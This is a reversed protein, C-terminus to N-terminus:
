RQQENIIKDCIVCTFLYTPPLLKGYDDEHQVTDCRSAPHTCVEQAKLKLAAANQIATEGIAQQKTSEKMMDVVRTVNISTM